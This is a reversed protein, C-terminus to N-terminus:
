RTKAPIKSGQGRSSVGERIATIIGATAIMVMGLAASPTPMTGFLIKGWLTIFLLYSFDLPALWSSDATQYARSLFINGMLNLVSAMICFGLVLLTLEPWGILIFPVAQRMADDFPLLSITVGGIAGFIIFVMAVFLTLCLPSENRCYKRLIIINSAYFFGAIVPMIQVWKFEDSFPNLVTMSGAMGLVLAGIRWPGIKEGLIPGAMITIFLPYTYLGAAMQTVTIQPAAGFFFMMCIALMVGRALVAKLNQPKLIGFGLTSRAIILVFCFNFLSRVLQFQWFSTNPSIVKVISDQFSLVLVGMLILGLAMM